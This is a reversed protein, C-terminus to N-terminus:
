ARHLAQDVDHPSSRLSPEFSSSKRLFTSMFPRELLAYFGYSAALVVPVLLLYAVLQERQDAHVRRLTERLVNILPWHILSISYAFTGLFVAPKWAL